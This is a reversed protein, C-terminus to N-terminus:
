AVREMSFKILSMKPDWETRRARREVIVVVNDHKGEPIPGGCSMDVLGCEHIGAMTLM